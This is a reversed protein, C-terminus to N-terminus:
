RSPLVFASLRVKMNVKGVLINIPRFIYSRFPLIKVKAHIKLPTHYVKSDTVFLYHQNVGGFRLHGGCLNCRSKTLESNCYAFDMIVGMWNVFFFSTFRAWGEMFRRFQHDLPMGGHATNIRPQLTGSKERWACSVVRQMSWTHEWWLFGGTRHCCSGRTM